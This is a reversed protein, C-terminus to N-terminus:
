KLGKATKQRDKAFLLNRGVLNVAGVAGVIELINGVQPSTPPSTKVCHLTLCLSHRAHRGAKVIICSSVSVDFSAAADLLVVRSWSPM